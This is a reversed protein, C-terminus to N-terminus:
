AIVDSKSFVSGNSEMNLLIACYNIIDCTCVNFHDVNVKVHYILNLRKNYIASDICIINPAM